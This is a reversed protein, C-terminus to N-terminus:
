QIEFVEELGSQGLTQLCYQFLAASICYILSLSNFLVIKSEGVPWRGPIMSEAVTPHNQAPDEQRRSAKKNASSKTSEKAAKLHRQRIVTYITAVTVAVATLVMATGASFMNGALSLIDVAM